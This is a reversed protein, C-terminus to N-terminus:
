GTPGLFLAATNPAFLFSLIICYNGRSEVQIDQDHSCGGYRGGLVANDRRGGGFHHLDFLAFGLLGRFPELGSPNPM